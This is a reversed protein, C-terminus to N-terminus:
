SKNEEEGKKEAMKQMEEMSHDRKSAAVTEESDSALEEKWEGKGGKAKQM